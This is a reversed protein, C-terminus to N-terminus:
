RMGRKTKRRGMTQKREAVASLGQGHRHGIEEAENTVCGTWGGAPGLGVRRKYGEKKASNHLM